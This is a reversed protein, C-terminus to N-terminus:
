HRSKGAIRVNRGVFPNERKYPIATVEPVEKAPLQKTENDEKPLNEALNPAQFVGPPAPRGFVPAKEGIKGALAVPRVQSLASISNKFM